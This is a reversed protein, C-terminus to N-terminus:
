DEVLRMKLLERAADLEKQLYSLHKDKEAIVRDKDSERAKSLEWSIHLDGIMEKLRAMTVTVPQM